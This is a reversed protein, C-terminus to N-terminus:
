TELYTGGRAQARELARLVTAGLEADDPGTLPPEPEPEYDFGERPGLSRLPRVTVVGREGEGVDVVKAGDVLSRWSRAKMARLVGDIARDPQEAKEGSRSLAVRVLRGLEAPDPIEDLAAVPEGSFRPSTRTWQDPVVVLRGGRSWVEASPRRM